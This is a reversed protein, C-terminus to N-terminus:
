FAPLLDLEWEPIHVHVQLILVAWAVSGKIIFFFFILYLLNADVLIANEDRVSSSHKKLFTLRM